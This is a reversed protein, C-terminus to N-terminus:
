GNLNGNYYEAEEMLVGDSYRRIYKGHLQGAVYFASEELGGEEHREIFEGQLLGNEFQRSERVVGTADKFEWRGAPDGHIYETKEKVFSVKRSTIGHKRAIEREDRDLKYGSITTIDTGHRQGRSMYYINEERSRRYNRQTVMKGHARGNKIEAYQNYSFPFNSQSYKRNVYVVWTGNEFVARHKTEKKHYIGKIIGNFRQHDKFLVLSDTFENIRGYSYTGPVTDMIGQQYETWSLGTRKDTTFRQCIYSNKVTDVHTIRFNKLTDGGSTIERKFSRNFGNLSYDYNTQHTYYTIGHLFLEGKKLNPYYSSYYTYDEPKGDYDYSIVSVKNGERFETVEYVRNKWVKDVRHQTYNTLVFTAISDPINKDKKVLIYEPMGDYRFLTDFYAVTGYHHLVTEYKKLTGSFNVRTIEKGHLNHRESNRRPYMDDYVNGFWATSDSYTYENSIEDGGWYSYWTGTPHGKKYQGRKTLHLSDVLQFKGKKPPKGYYTYETYPGNLIGEHFTFKKTSLYMSKKSYRSESREEWVGERLGKVYNGTEATTKDYNYFVAKGEPVNNKVTFIARVLTTDLLKYEKKLFKKKFDYEHFIVYEGDPISAFYPPIEREDTRLPYVYFSKGQITTKALQATGRMSILLPLFLLIRYM